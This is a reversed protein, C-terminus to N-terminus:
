VRDFELGNGRWDPDSLATQIFQEVEAAYAEDRQYAGAAGFPVIEWDVGLQELVRQAVNQDEECYARLQVAGNLCVRDEILVEIMPDGKRVSLM